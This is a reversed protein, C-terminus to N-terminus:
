GGSLLQVFPDVDLLDLAGDQNIDAECSFVSKALADVFPTVDLLDVAGDRNLDGPLCAVALSLMVLSGDAVSGPNAPDYYQFIWGVDGRNNIRPAGSQSFNQDRRGLQRLGIDTEIMDGEGGLRILQNGDGVFVSSLGDQNDGRFVVLGQDNVDPAFFDITNIIADADSAILAILQTSDDYRYIGSNGGTDVAQFAVKSGDDSISISNTIFESFPSMPDTETEVAILTSGGGADFIRIEEFDVDAITSVKAAIRPSNKSTGRSMDPTFLFSYPSSADADADAAYVDLSPFGSTQVPFTGYVNGDFGFRLRGGIRQEADLTLGSAATAGLPLNLPTTAELLADYFFLDADIGVTFIAQQQGSLSPEGTIIDNADFVIDGTVVGSLNSAYFLGANGTDGVFNVDLAVHGVDDISITPSSLSSGNPMNFSTIGTRGYITPANYDPVEAVAHIAVVMGVAVAVCYYLNKM